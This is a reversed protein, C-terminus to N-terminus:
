TQFAQRLEEPLPGGAQPCGQQGEWGWSCSKAAGHRHSDELQAGAGEHCLFGWMQLSKNPLDWERGYPLHTRSGLVPHPLSQPDPYPSAQASCGRGM